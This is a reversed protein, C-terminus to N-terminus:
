SFLESRFRRGFLLPKSAETQFVLCVTEMATFGLIGAALLVSAINRAM